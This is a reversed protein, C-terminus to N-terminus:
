EDILGHACDALQDTVCVSVTSSVYQESKGPLRVTLTAGYVTASGDKVPNVTVLHLVFGVTAKDDALILRRNVVLDSRLKKLLMAGVKDGASIASRVIIAARPPRNSSVAQKRM